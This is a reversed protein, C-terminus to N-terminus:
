DDTIKKIFEKNMGENIAKSVKPDIKLKSLM